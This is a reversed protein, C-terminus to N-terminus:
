DPVPRSHGPSELTYHHWEDGKLDDRVVQRHLVTLGQSHSRWADYHGGEYLLQEGNLLLQERLHIVVGQPHTNWGDWDGEYLLQRGNLLFRRGQRIVVGQPHVAWGVVPM